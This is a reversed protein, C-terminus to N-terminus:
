ASPLLPRVLSSLAKRYEDSDYAHLPHPPLAREEIRNSRRLYVAPYITGDGGIEVAVAVGDGGTTDVFVELPLIGDDVLGADTVSVVRCLYGKQIWLEPAHELERALYPVLEDAAVPTREPAIDFHKAALHRALVQANYRFGNVSSSTSSVGHKRLGPAGQTSNGAFYVGPVTVSEWLATQAPIRGNAVTAVGLQPLDGLPVQFGTAAIVDDVEFVLETAGRTTVRFGDGVREVREISADLIATGFGGRVFHDYPQLYRVRLPSLGLVDTRMPRPSALVIQAAWPLLGNAIEFASNRKGIIFVRRGSYTEKARVDVYHPAHELGDIAAKWPTTVGLAFVVARAHYEGDSTTLVFGDDDRRTSDWRCGYRVRLAARNAFAVLGREMEDRSPVDFSRDMLEPVAAAYEPEAALLSNHDYLEYERTGPEVPAEPKTWSILREFIPFRRFMGGPTDDASLVAHDIGLRALCYSTQLGGPGSGVVVVGYRGPPFPADVRAV